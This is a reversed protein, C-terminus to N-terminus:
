FLYKLKTLFLNHFIPTNNLFRKKSIRNWLHRQLGSECYNNYVWYYQNKKHLDFYKRPLFTKPSKSILNSCASNLSIFKDAYESPPHTTSICPVLPPLLTALYTMPTFQISQFGTGIYSREVNRQIQLEALTGTPRRLLASSILLAISSDQTKSWLIFIHWWM